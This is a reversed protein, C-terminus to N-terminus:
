TKVLCFSIIVNIFFPAASIPQHHIVLNLIFCHVMKNRNNRWGFHKKKTKSLTFKQTIRASDRSHCNGTVICSLLQSAFLSHQWWMVPLVHVLFILSLDVLIKSFAVSCLTTFCPNLYFKQALVNILYQRNPKGRSYVTSFSLLFLKAIKYLVDLWIPLYWPPMESILFCLTAGRGLHHNGCLEELPQYFNSTPLTISININTGSIFM